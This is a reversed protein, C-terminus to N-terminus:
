KAEEMFRKIDEESHGYYFLRSRIQKDDIGNEKLIRVADPLTPGGACRAGVESMKLTDYAIQIQRTKFIDKPM